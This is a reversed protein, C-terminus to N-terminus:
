SVETASDSGMGQDTSLTAFPRAPYHIAGDPHRQCPRDLMTMALAARNLGNAPANRGPESANSRPNEETQRFLAHLDTSLVFVTSFEAL